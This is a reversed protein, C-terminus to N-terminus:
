SANRASYIMCYRRERRLSDCRFCYKGLLTFHAVASLCGCGKIVCRSVFKRTLEKCHGCPWSCRFRHHGPLTCKQSDAAGVPIDVNRTTTIKWPPTSRDQQVELLSNRKRTAALKRSLAPRADASFTKIFVFCHSWHLSRKLIVNKFEFVVKLFWVLDTCLGCLIHVSCRCSDSYLM